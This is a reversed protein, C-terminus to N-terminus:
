RTGTTGNAEAEITQDDDEDAEGFSAPEGAATLRSDDRDAEDGGRVAARAAVVAVDAAQAALKWRPGALKDIADVTEDDTAAEIIAAAGDRLLRGVTALAEGPGGTGPTEAGVVAEGAMAGARLDREVQLRQRYLVEWEDYPVHITAL